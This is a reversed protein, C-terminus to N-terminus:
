PTVETVLVAVSPGDTLATSVAERVARAVDLARHSSSVALEVRVHRHALAAPASTEEIHVARGLGGLAGTLRVVGAVGQAARAVRGEDGDAASEEAPAPASEPKEEREPEADLLATVQLDVEAVVLGLGDRAAQELAERLRAAARPLPEDATAACEAGIRLPGPPLASPPAPVVSTYSGDPDAPALRLSGLRVGSVAAASRRLAGAAAVETIWAGDGPGGLPLLRGFGLQQRVAQAWRDAMM